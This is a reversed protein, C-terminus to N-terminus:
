VYRSLWGLLGVVVWTQHSGLSPGNGLGVALYIFEQGTRVESWFTGHLKSTNYPTRLVYM